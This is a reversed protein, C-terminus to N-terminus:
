RIGLCARLLSTKGCKDKGLILYDHSDNILNNFDFSHSAFDARRVEESSKKSLVPATWLDNFGKIGREIKGHLFLDNAEELEIDFRQRLKKRFRNQEQKAQSIPIPINKVGNDYLFERRIDYYRSLCQAISDDLNVNIFTYGITSGDAEALTAAAELQLIGSNNTYFASASDKHVHGSFSINFNNHIIDELEYKNFGKFDSMPHHHLLIKFDCKDIYKLGTSIFKLPMLLNGQDYKTGTSTDLKGLARWSTNACMIGINLNHFKRIHCSFGKEYLFDNNSNNFISDTFEFYNSLPELSNKYDFSSITAFTDLKSNNQIKDIYEFTALSIKERNIDHNGPCIFFNDISLNLKSLLKDILEFKAKHFNEINNGNDVLDGTFFIIDPKHGREVIDNILADVIKSQRYQDSQKTSFHYDTLHLINM